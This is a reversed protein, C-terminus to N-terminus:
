ISCGYEQMRKDALIKDIIGNCKCWRLSLCLQMIRIPVINWSYFWKMHSVGPCLPPVREWVQLGLECFIKISKLNWLFYKPFNVCLDLNIGFFVYEWVKLRLKLHFICCYRNWILSQSLNETFYILFM